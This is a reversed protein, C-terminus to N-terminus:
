YNRGDRGAHYGNRKGSPFLSRQYGTGYKQHCIVLDGEKLYVLDKKSKSSQKLLPIGGHNEERLHLIVSDFKAHIDGYHIYYTDRENDDYTLDSRSFSCSKILDFINVFRYLKWEM